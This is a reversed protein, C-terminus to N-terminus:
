RINSKQTLVLILNEGRSLRNNSIVSTSIVLTSQLVKMMVTANNPFSIMVCLGPKIVHLRISGESTYRELNNQDKGDVMGEM